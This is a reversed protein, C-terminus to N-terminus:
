PKAKPMHAMVKGVTPSWTYAFPHPCSLATFGKCSSLCSPTVRFGLGWAKYVRFVLGEVGLKSPYSPFCSKQLGISTRSPRLKAEMRRMLTGSHCDPATTTQSIDAAWALPSSLSLQPYVPICLTCSTSDKPNLYLELAELFADGWLIGWSM